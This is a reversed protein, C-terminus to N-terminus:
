SSGAARVVQSAQNPTWHVLDAASDFNGGLIYNTIAGGETTIKFTASVGGMTMVVNVATSASGSSMGKTRVQDGVRGISDTTRWAGGNVLYSGGTVSLKIAATCGAITVPDLIYETSLTAGAVEPFSFANPVADM